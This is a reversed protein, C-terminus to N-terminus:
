VIARVLADLFIPEPPVKIRRGNEGVEELYQGPLRGGYYNNWANRMNRLINMARRKLELWITWNAQWLCLCAMFCGTYSILGLKRIKQRPKSIETDFYLTLVASLNGFISLVIIVYILLRIIMLKWPSAIATAPNIM